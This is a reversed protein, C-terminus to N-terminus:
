PARPPAGWDNALSDTCGCRLQREVHTVDGAIGTEEDYSGVEVDVEVPYHEGPHADMVRLDPRELRPATM